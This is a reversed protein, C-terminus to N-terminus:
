GADSSVSDSDTPSAALGIQEATQERFVGRLPEVLRVQCRRSIM